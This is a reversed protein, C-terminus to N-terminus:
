FNNLKLKNGNSFKNTLFALNKRPLVDNVQTLGIAQAHHHIHVDIIDVSEDSDSSNVSM